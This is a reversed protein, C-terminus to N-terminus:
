RCGMKRYHNKAVKKKRQIKSSENQNTLLQTTKTDEPKKTNPLIAGETIHHAHNQTM